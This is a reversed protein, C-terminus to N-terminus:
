VPWELLRRPQGVDPKGSRAGHAGGATHIRPRRHTARRPEPAACGGLALVLLRAAESPLGLDQLLAAAITICGDTWAGAISRLDPDRGAQLYLEWLALQRARVEPDTPCLVGVLLDVAAAVDHAGRLGAVARRWAELEREVLRAFTHTVLDDRSLDADM